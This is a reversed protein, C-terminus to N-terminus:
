DVTASRQPTAAATPPPFRMFWSSLCLALTQFAVFLLANEYVALFTLTAALNPVHCLAVKRANWATINHEPAVLRDWYRDHWLGTFVSIAGFTVVVVLWAPGILRDAVSWMSLFLQGEAAGWLLGFALVWVPRLPRGHTETGLPWVIGYGIGVVVLCGVASLWWGASAVQEGTVPATTTITAFVGTLWSVLWCAAFYVLARLWASRPSYRGREPGLRAAAVAGLLVWL